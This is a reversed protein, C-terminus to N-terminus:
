TAANIGQFDLSQGGGRGRYRDGWSLWLRCCHISFAWNFWWGLLFEDKKVIYVLGIICIELLAGVKKPGPAAAGSTGGLPRGQAYM